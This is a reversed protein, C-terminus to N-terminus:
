KPWIKFHRKGHIRYSNFGRLDLTFVEDVDAEEALTVLTADAFDMPVDKYKEMLAIARSLSAASQPVLTAGGKLIFDICAREAKISPGLLYLTETLVPETTYVEGKYTSFFVVCSQHSNESRDLLAVFAGTDLLLSRM